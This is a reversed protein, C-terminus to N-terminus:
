FTMNIPGMALIKSVYPSGRYVIIRRVNADDLICKCINFKPWVM